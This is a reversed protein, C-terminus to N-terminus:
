RIYVATAAVKATGSTRPVTWLRGTAQSFITMYFSGTIGVGRPNIWTFFKYGEQNPASLDVSKATDQTFSIDDSTVNVLLIDSVGKKLTSVAM